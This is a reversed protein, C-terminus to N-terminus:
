TLPLKFSLHETTKYQNTSADYIQWSNKIHIPLKAKSVVFAYCMDTGVYKRLSLRWQTSIPEYWLVMFEGLMDPLDQGRYTPYDNIWDNRLLIKFLQSGKSDTLSIYPPGSKDNMYPNEEEKKGGFKAPRPPRRPMSGDKEMQKLIAEYRRRREEKYIQKNMGNYHETQHLTQDRNHKISTAASLIMLFFMMGMWLRFVKFITQNIDPQVNFPSGTGTGYPNQYTQQYFQQRRYEEESMKRSNQGWSRQWDYFQGKRMHEYPDYGAGAGSGPPSQRGYQQQNGPYRYSQSNGILQRHQDYEIRTKDDGVVEYAEQIQKFKERATKKDAESKNVQMDPHWEKALKYYSAKIDKSTATKSVGLVQYFDITDWNRRGFGASSFLRTQHKFRKRRNKFSKPGHYLPFNHFKKYLILLNTRKYLPFNHILVNNTQSTLFNRKICNYRFRFFCSGTRICSFM